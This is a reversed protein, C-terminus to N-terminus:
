FAIADDDGGARRMANNIKDLIWEVRQQAALFVARAESLAARAQELEEQLAHWATLEGEDSEDM